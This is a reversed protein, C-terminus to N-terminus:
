NSPPSSWAGPKRVQNGSGNFPQDRILDGIIALSNAPLRASGMGHSFIAFTSTSGTVLQSLFPIRM